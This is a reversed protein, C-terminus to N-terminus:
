NRTRTDIKLDYHGPGADSRVEISLPTTQPSNYRRDIISKPLGAHGAKGSPKEHMFVTVRYNGEPAGSNGHLYVQYTGDAQISGVPLVGSKQDVPHFTVSGGSAPREDVRVSGHVPVLEPETASLGCGLGTTLWVAVIGSFGLLPKM